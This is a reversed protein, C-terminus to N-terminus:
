RIVRKAKCKTCYWMGFSFGKVWNHKGPLCASIPLTAESKYRRESKGWLYYYKEDVKSSKKKKPLFKEYEKRTLNLKKLEKYTLMGRDYKKHCNPCLPIVLNGGKSFAKIHAMELPVEKNSKGCIKCRYGHIKLILERDIPQRKKKASSVSM